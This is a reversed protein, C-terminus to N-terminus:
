LGRGNNVPAAFMTPCKTVKGEAIAEAVLRAAEDASPAGGRFAFGPVSMLYSNRQKNLAVNAQQAPSLRKNPAAAPRPMKVAAPRIYTVKVSFEAAIKNAQRATIGLRFAAQPINMSQVLVRLREAVQERRAGYLTVEAGLKACARVRDLAAASSKADVLAALGAATSRKEVGCKRAAERITLDDREVFFKIAHAYAARYASSERGKFPLPTGTDAAAIVAAVTITPPVDSM